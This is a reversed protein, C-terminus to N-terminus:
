KKMERKERTPTKFFLFFFEGAIVWEARNGSYIGVRDGFKVNYLGKVGSGLNDRRKKLNEYTIWEYPGKGDNTRTGLCKENPYKKASKEFLTVLEHVSDDYTDM